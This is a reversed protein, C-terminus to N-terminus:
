WEIIPSPDLGGMPPPTGPGNLPTGGMPDPSTGPGDTILDTSTGAQRIYAGQCRLGHLAAHKHSFSAHLGLREALEPHRRLAMEGHAAMWAPQAAQNDTIGSYLGAEFRASLTEKSANSASLGVKMKDPFAIALNKTLAHVGAKAASYAASPTGGIAQLGWMSGTQVIAGGRGSDKMAKAAAQAAFFKGKLIIGLFRDYEAEEVELFRKPTFIGANNFLVDLRGFRNIATKVVAEGTAPLAIDGAHM